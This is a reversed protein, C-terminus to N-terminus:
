SWPKAMKSCIALLPKHNATERWGDAWIQSMLLLIQSLYDEHKDENM